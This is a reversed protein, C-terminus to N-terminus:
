PKRSHSEARQERCQHRGDRALGDNDACAARGAPLRRQARGRGPALSRVSDSRPSKVRLRSKFLLAGSDSGMVQEVRVVISPHTCIAFLRPDERHPSSFTDEGPIDVDAIEPADCKFPGVYGNERFFTVDEDSLRYRQQTAADVRRAASARLSAWTLPREWFADGRGRYYDNLASDMLRSARLAARASGNAPGGARICEVVNRIMPQHVFGQAGSDIRRATFTDTTSTVRSHAGSSSGSRSIAHEIHRRAVCSSM